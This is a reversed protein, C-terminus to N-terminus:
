EGIGKQNMLKYIELPNTPTSKTLNEYGNATVVITDEIRVHIKQEKDELIPEVNFVVGPEFPKSYDGVDHVSMGVFHGISNVYFKELGHKVFVDKCIKRLDDVTVGPKIAAIVKESAEKVCNYYKLQTPNFEGEVPWTRTIDTSYYHVEPAYDLYFLEGKKLKHNNANYHWSLGNAGGAAIAFYAPGFAGGNGYVFDTAAVVQYEYIGPRTVRMAEDFGRAALEGCKRLVAIEKDDKIWRMNDLIPTLDKLSILPFRTKLNNIFALEKSTRGDWPDNTINHQQSQCRSRTMQATEEPTTIVWIDHNRMVLNTIQSTMATKSVVNTFKYESASNSLPTIRAEDRIDASVKDPVLLTSTKTRGNLILVAGPTEVGTLYYFNNDQRFKVYGDPLNAGQLIAVGDGIQEMVKSRRKEFDDASFYTWMSQAYTGLSTSLLIATIATKLKNM